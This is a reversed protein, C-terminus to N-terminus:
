GHQKILQKIQGAAKQAINNWSYNEFFQKPTKMKSQHLQMIVSNSFLIWDNNPVTILQAGCLAKNIGAAGDITSVVKCHHSLAEIVKTKVGTNNIIPNIFLDSNRYFESINTVFGKFIIYQNNCIKDKIETPLGTGTILLKFKLEAEILLPIIREVLINIADHNPKYDLTGNFFLIKEDEKIGNEIRFSSRENEKDINEIGYTVVSCKDEKLNWQRIAAEKDEESIFFSFDAKQHAWREYKNYIHWWWRNMLRFRNAEVNHSHIIFPTKTRKRLLVALFAPYSHEVIIAKIANTKILNELKKLQLLNFFIYRNAYLCKITKETEDIKNDSSVVLQVSIFNQLHQYFLAIGKQGGMQTPYIKYSVLALVDPM